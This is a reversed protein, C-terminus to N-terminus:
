TANRSQGPILTHNGSQTFVQIGQILRLRASGHDPDYSLIGLANIISILQQLAEQLTEVVFASLYPKSTQKTQVGRHQCFVESEGQPKNDMLLFKM